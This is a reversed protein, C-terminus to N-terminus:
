LIILPATNSLIILSTNFCCKAFPTYFGSGMHAKCKSLNRWLKDEPEKIASTDEACLPCKRTAGPKKTIDHELYAKTIAETMLKVDDNEDTVSDPRVDGGIRVDIEDPIQQSAALDRLNQEVDVDGLVEEQEETTKTEMNQHMNQIKEKIMKM